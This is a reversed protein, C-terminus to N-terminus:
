GVDRRILDELTERRVLPRARGGHVAVVPPRAIQNYNSAMSHHYAGTCPVALLDGPRVDAPLPVDAAIVDGAECHRGVVTAPTESAGTRRGVRTVSYRSGYLAPRPNDSMGGDVVVFTRAGHKVAIVRYLTVGAAAVIARGPEVTLSPEPIGRVSCEEAVATLVRAAFTCVDLGHEDPRYAVAHGGGLDLEPLGGMEAMFAVLRRAATEYGDPEGIQSGIHCHLGALALTPQGLVRRVVDAAAGSALSLGFKQDEVGTAVARHVHPDVGPTVRVLVKQPHPRDGAQAALRAVEGASDVVIRGVGYELAAALDAPTKGNGHLLIREAPFGVSRALALEGASCVDLWLGEEDVWRAMARCLFAKGAYAVRHPRLAKRYERCRHRVHEEDLVYVPTGFREAIETLSVGGVSHGPDATLPWINM